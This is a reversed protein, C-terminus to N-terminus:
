ARAASLFRNRMWVGFLAFGAGYVAIMVAYGLPAVGLGLVAVGVGQGLVWTFSFLAMGIGRAHPAMETAGIQLTNHLMNFAFGILVMCPVLPWWTAALAAAAYCGFVLLGGAV